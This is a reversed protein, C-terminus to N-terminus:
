TKKNIREDVDNSFEIMKTENLYEIVVRNQHFKKMLFVTLKEIYNKLTNEKTPFKPYNIFELKLHKERQNNLVILSDIISCSLYFEEELMLKKQYESISELIENKQIPKQSYGYELGINVIAKFSKITTIKM